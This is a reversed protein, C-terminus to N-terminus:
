KNNNNIGEKLTALSLCLTADIKNKCKKTELILPRLILTTNNLQLM